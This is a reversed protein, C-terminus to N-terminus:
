YAGPRITSPEFGLDLIGEVVARVNRVNEEARDRPMMGGDRSETMHWSHTALVIHDLPAAMEVYDEPRRRGEHMPWLYAAITRGDRDKAKPVPYVTMGSSEFPATPGGIDTYVSSDARIGLAKVAGMVRSDASM